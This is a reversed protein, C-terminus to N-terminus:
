LEGKARKRKSEALREGRAAEREGAGRNTPGSRRSRAAASRGALGALATAAHPEVCVAPVRLSRTDSSTLEEFREGCEECEFEYVPM